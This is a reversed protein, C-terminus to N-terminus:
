CVKWVKLSGGAAWKQTQSAASTVPRDQPRACTDTDVSDLASVQFDEKAQKQIHNATHMIHVGVM